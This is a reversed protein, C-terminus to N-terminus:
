TSSEEEVEVGLRRLRDFFSPDSVAAAQADHITVPGRAVLAAVAFAMALRHDGGSSVSGGHLPTPGEIDWGDNYETIRAGLRALEVACASLRDSEKNRLEVAGRVSTTGHAQTALVALLPLEDVMAPVDGEGVRASELPAGPYVVEVDQRPEGGGLAMSGNCREGRFARGDSMRFLLDFFGMRTPNVCVDGLLLTSGPVLCAAAALFAASSPDGPISLHLSAVAKVPGRVGVRGRADRRSPPAARHLVQIGAVPLLRETHDRSPYPESVWTTGQAGLGALLVCSKVQASPTKLSIEAGRLPVGRVALPPLSAAARGDIRAGM